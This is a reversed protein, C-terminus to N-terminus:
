FILIIHHHNRPGLRSSMCNGNLNLSDDLEVMDLEEIVRNKVARTAFGAVQLELWILIHRHEGGHM